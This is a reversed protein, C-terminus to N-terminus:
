PLVVLEVETEDPRTPRRSLVFSGEITRDLLPQGSPRVVFRGSGEIRTPGVSEGANAADAELQIELTADSPLGATAASIPIGAVSATFTTPTLTVNAPFRGAPVLGTGEGILTGAVGASSRLIELRFTVEAGSETFSGEWPGDNDRITLQFEGVRGRGPNNCVDISLTVWEVAEIQDDDTLSIPITVADGNVGVAGSLAGRDAPGATGGVTYLLTGQFPADFFVPVLVTGDGEDAAAAPTGFEAVEPFTSCLRFATCRQDEPLSGVEGRAIALADVVNCRGDGDVDCKLVGRTAGGVQGRAIALADAVNTRGDGDVDGCQCADGLGNGDTDAQSASGGLPGNPVFTCNDIGDPVGDSDTDIARAPLAGGLVACFIVVLMAPLACAPM